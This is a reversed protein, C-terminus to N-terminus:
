ARRRAQRLDTSRRTMVGFFFGNIGNREQIGLSGLITGPARPLEGAGLAPSAEGVAHHRETKHIRPRVLGLVM